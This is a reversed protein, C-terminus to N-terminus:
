PDPTLSLDAATLGIRIVGNETLAFIRLAYVGAEPDGPQVPVVILAGTVSDRIYLRRLRRFSYTDLVDVFPAGGAEIGSSFSIRRGDNAPYGSNLPHMASGGTPAGSEVTGQLRLENNFYYVQTGRAVGLSGDFNLGLGIVREAANGILDRTQRTTGVLAGGPRSAFYLIRGIDVAGEGFAVAAHNGAVAVFTTDSLAITTADTNLDVRTDTLGLSRLSDMSFAVESVYGSYCGLNSPQSPSIPRPCVVLQGGLLGGAKGADLANVVTAFNERREAYRIFIEPGRNTAGESIPDTDDRAPVYLIKSDDHIRVTGDPATSTPKTSYLVQGTRVQGLFQPRDSYDIEFVRSVTDATTSYRVDYLLNNATFIRRSETLVPNSLGVVSINTGGSNAVFLTDSPTGDARSGITLGWPQSGVAITASAFAPAAVPLVEVRNRSYNSVFVRSGDSTIDAYIDSLSGRFAITNDRTVLTNSLRGAVDRAFRFSGVATCELSQLLGPSVAAGCNRAPDTAWATLEIALSTTDTASLQTLSALRVYLTDSAPPAQQALRQTDAVMLGTTASRYRVVVTAGLSDVRNNDVANLVIGVSDTRQLRVPVDFSFQVQPATLDAAPPTIPISVPPSANAELNSGSIASANLTVPGTATVPVPVVIVTDIFARPTAFRITDGFPTPLGTARLSIARVLDIRDEATIRVNIVSGAAVPTGSAPSVIQIRPGGVNIYATDVSQRGASDIATAVIRVRREPTSDSNALLYRLITTDTVVRGVGLLDVTKTDYRDVRTQTGLNPDGRLAFGELRLTALRRNDRVRVRVFVSDGVAVVASDLPLEISVTPAVTDAVTNNGTSDPPLTGGCGPGSPTSFCNKGDCAALLLGVALATAPAKMLRLFRSVSFSRNSNSSPTSRIM